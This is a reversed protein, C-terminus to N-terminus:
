FRESVELVKWPSNQFLLSEAPNCRHAIGGAEHRSLERAGDDGNATSPSGRSSRVLGTDNMVGM